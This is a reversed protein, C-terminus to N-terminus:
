ALNFVFSSAAPFALFPEHRDGEFAVQFAGLRQKLPCVIMADVDVYDLLIHSICFM